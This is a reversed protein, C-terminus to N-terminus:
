GVRFRGLTEYRPNPGQHSRMLCIEDVTWEPGDYENLEIIDAAVIPAPARDGPRAITLHPRFPKQDYPVRAKRLRKRVTASTAALRDVDGRLGAWLITFRGRGFKGGGGVRLKAPEGPVDALAKAVDPVRDDPTQGAFALTVHWLERATLRVNTEHQAGYRALGLDDVLRGLDALAEQSPYAAVFLRM